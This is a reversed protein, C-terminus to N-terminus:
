EITNKHPSFAVNKRGIIEKKWYIGKLPTVPSREKGYNEEIDYSASEKINLYKKFELRDDLFNSIKHRTKREYFCIKPNTQSNIAKKLGPSEKDLWSGYGGSNSISSSFKKFIPDETLFECTEDFGNMCPKNSYLFNSSEGENPSLTNHDPLDIPIYLTENLETIHKIEFKRENFSKLITEVTNSDENIDLSKRQLGTFYEHELAEKATIRRKPDTELLQM